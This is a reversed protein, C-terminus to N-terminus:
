GNVAFVGKVTDLPDATYPITLLSGPLTLRFLLKDGKTAIAVVKFLIDGKPNIAKCEPYLTDYVKVKHAVTKNKYTFM